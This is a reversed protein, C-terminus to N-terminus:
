PWTVVLFLCFVFLRGLFPLDISELFFPRIDMSERRLDALSPTRSEPHAPSEPQGATPKAPIIPAHDAGPKDFAGM